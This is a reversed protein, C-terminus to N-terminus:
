KSRRQSWGWSLSSHIEKSEGSCSVMDKRLYQRGNGSGTGRSPQYKTRTLYTSVRLLYSSYTLLYASYASPTSYVNAYPAHHLLMGIEQSSVEKSKVQCGASDRISYDSLVLLVLLFTTLLIHENGDM